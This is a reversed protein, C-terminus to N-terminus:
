RDQGCTSRSVKTSGLMPGEGLCVYIRGVLRFQVQLYLSSSRRRHEVSEIFSLSKCSM